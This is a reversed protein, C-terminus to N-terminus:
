QQFCYVVDDSSCPAIYRADDFWRSSITGSSGNISGNGTTTTWDACSSAATAVATISSAGTVVPGGYYTNGITVNPPALLNGALADAATAAIAVGDRRVWTPGAPAFRSAADGGADGRRLV